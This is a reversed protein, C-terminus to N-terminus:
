WTLIQSDDGCSLQLSVHWVHVLIARDDAGFKNVTHILRNRKKWPSSNWSCTGHRRRFIIFFNNKTKLNRWYTLEFSGHYHHRHFLHQYRYFYIGIRFYIIQSLYQKDFGKWYWEDNVYVNSLGIVLWFNIWNWTKSRSRYQESFISM